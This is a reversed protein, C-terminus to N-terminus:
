DLKYSTEPCQDCYLYTASITEEDRYEAGCSVCHPNRFMREQVSRVLFGYFEDLARELNGDGMFREHSDIYNSVAILMIMDSRLVPLDSKPLLKKSNKKM